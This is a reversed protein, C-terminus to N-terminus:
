QVILKSVYKHGLKDEVKIWYLGESLKGRKIIVSNQTPMGEQLLQGLSSFLEWKVIDGEAFYSDIESLYILASEAMPNPQIRITKIAQEETGFSIKNIVTNTELPDEFDFQIAVQNKIELGETVSAKPLIRFDIWGHSNPEDRMSDALMIYDFRFSLVGDENISQVYDHSAGIVEISSWDLFPSLPDRIVVHTAPVSGVNQFRIRYTLSDTPLIDGEPFVRLDNPDIAGAITNYDNYTNDSVNCDSPVNRFTGVTSTSAGVTASASVSDTVLITHASFAKITDLEWVYTQTSGNDEVTDWPTTASLFIIEQDVTIALEANYLSSAGDNFYSIAYSNRFGKRLATSSLTLGLDNGSCTVANPFNTSPPNVFSGGSKEVDTTISSYCTPTYNPSGLQTITYSGTDAYFEYYGHEDSVIQRNTPTINLQVNPIVKEGENFTCDGNADVFIYGSIKSVQDEQVDLCSNTALSGMYQRYGSPWEIMVSDIQSADGLGFYAKLTNQASIGGTQSMIERMQWVDQGYINAKVHVKAGIASRNSVTGELSFCKWSNCNGKDNIYLTNASNNNNAVFMDLDGDNDFDAVAIASSNELDENPYIDTPLSFDGGGDNMYLRNANGNDNVVYLDLDGDNDADFWSSGFSHGTETAILSSTNKSFTGDGNNEYFFNAQNSANTVYLDLDGDNDYDAWSAGLSNGGDNVINGSTIQTFRGNGDNHYLSNNNDWSNSIFLDVLGDNDYDGWAGGMSFTAELIIPNGEAAAFTGNGANSYLQNFRTPMYEAVFVDLHGDNDYDVWTPSHCYGNYDNLDGVDPVDFNGTGDNRYIRNEARVNNAMFVDLDGDNDYDAWTAGVNSGTESTLSGGSVSTFTGDGNNRYLHSGDWHNYEPVLLDEDGDGDFDGWSAGWSNGLDTELGTNVGRSFKVSPDYVLNIIPLDDGCPRKAYASVTINEGPQYNAALDFLAEIQLRNMNVDLIGELGYDALTANHEWTNITFQNGVPDSLTTWNASLPYKFNFESSTPSITGSSPLTFVLYISDVHAKLASLVEVNLKVQGDCNDGVTSGSIRMQMESEEPEVRLNFTSYPCAFASFQTPYGSCEYGAHVVLDQPGCQTYAATILYKQTTNTSIAGLQYIDSTLSLTDGSDKNVVSLIQLDAGPEVLHLWANRMGASSSNNKVRLTWTVTRMLGDLTKAPSSLKISPPQFRVHDPNVAYWNTESGSLIDQELFTFGWVVDQYVNTPVDCTPAIKVNLKGQYGDDSPNITGGETTYYQSLDFFLTDNWTFDPAPITVTETTTGNVFRTRRQEFTIELVEYNEPILVKAREMTSWSRFEYPFLDGGAYNDCCDGISMFYNQSITKECDDITVYDEASVAYFYGILTYRGDFYACQFKNSNNSPNAIDSLYFENEITNERVVGGPNTTVAYDTYLWVSDGDGFTFGSFSACSAALTAVSFDYEFLQDEGDVTSSIAVNNCTLYSASSADYVRISAGVSSLYSGKEVESEAYGYSWSPHTASTHVVGYFTTRFTDGVMVRNARVNNMDLSGAADALGNQDNDPAGFNTRAVSFYNFGMGEDCAGPCHLNTYIVEDCLIPMTCTSSCTTDAVFDVDLELAIAGTAAGAENCDGSLALIIESQDLTFPAELLYKVELLKTSSNYDLALIEWENVGSQWVIDATDGSWALGIPITFSVKYYAGEGLPYSNNHSTLTYTFNEKQGDFMDAPTESFVSMSASMTGQPTGSSSQPNNDCANDYDLSYRWGAVGQGACPDVCCHYMDFKIIYNSGAALDPLSLEVSGIPNSGLCSYAGDNRTALSSTPAISTPTGNEGIQYTISSADIRSFLDQNYSGGTSKYLNLVLDEATGDGNNTLTISQQSAEGAAYCTNLSDQAVVALDPNVIDIDLYAFSQDDNQIQAGQGWYIDITSQVTMDTCGTALITETLDMSEFSDFYNDGNGIGNFDSGSLFLTDATASLTGVDIASLTLGSGYVDVLYLANLRGYGGNIISITRSTTVGPNVTVTTPSINTISLAAHLINYAQSQDSLTGENTTLDFSNRPTNGNVMYTRGDLDAEYEITFSLTGAVPLDGASFTLSADNSVDVEQVNHGSLNSVSGSVYNVGDPLGIVISQGTLPFSSSNVYEVTFTKAEDFVTIENPTTFTPYVDSLTQAPLRSAVLVFTILIFLRLIIVQTTLPFTSRM